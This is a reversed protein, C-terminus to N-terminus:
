FSWEQVSSFGDDVGTIGLDIEGDIIPLFFKTELVLCEFSRSVWL